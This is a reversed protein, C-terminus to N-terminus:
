TPWLMAGLVLDTLDLTAHGIGPMMCSPLLIRTLEWVALYTVPVWWRRVSRAWHYGCYFARQRQETAHWTWTARGAGGHPGDTGM